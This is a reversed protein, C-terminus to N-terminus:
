EKMRGFVRVHPLVMSPPLGFMARFTRSLHAADSFGAALAATTLDGGTAAAAVARQVRAWLVYRRFPLGVEATFRHTLRTPSTRARAAADALRPAGDLAEAVYALARRTPASTPEISDPAGLAATVEDCWRRMRSADSLMPVTPFAASRLCEALDEGDREVACRALAAGRVGHPEVLLLAIVGCRADLAHPERSPVLAARVETNTAGRMMRFMGDRAWVLQILHHVHREAAAAPGVYLAMGLDLFLQGAWPRGSGQPAM